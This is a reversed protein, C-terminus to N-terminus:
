RRERQGESPGSDVDDFSAAPELGSSVAESSAAAESEDQKVLTEAAMKFASELKPSLGEISGSLLDDLSRGTLVDTAKTRAFLTWGTLQEAHVIRDHEDVALIVYARTRYVSGAVGTAVRGLQRAQGVKGYFQKAQLYTLLGQLSWAAFLAVAIVLTTNV